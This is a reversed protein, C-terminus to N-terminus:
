IRVRARGGGEGLIQGREADMEAVREPQALPQAVCVQELARLALDLPPGLDDAAERALGAARAEAPGDHVEHDRGAAAQREGIELV